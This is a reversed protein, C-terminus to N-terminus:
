SGHGSHSDTFCYTLITTCLISLQTLKQTHSLIIPIQVTVSAGSAGVVDVVSAGSAGGVTGTGTGVREGGKVM